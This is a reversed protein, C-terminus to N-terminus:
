FDVFRQYPNNSSPWKALEMSVTVRRDIREFYQEGQQSLVIDESYGLRYDFCSHGILWEATLTTLQRNLREYESNGYLFDPDSRSLDWTGAFHLQQREGMQITQDLNYAKTQARLTGNLEMYAITNDTYGLYLRDNSASQASFGVRNEIMRGREHDFRYFLNVAFGSVPSLDLNLRLPMQQNGPSTEHLDEPIQPGVYEQYSGEATDLRNLNFPQTISAFLFRSVAQTEADKSLYLSELSYSLVRRGYVPPVFMAGWRSYDVEPGTTEGPETLTHNSPTRALGRRQDVDGVQEFVVKPRFSLRSRGRGQEDTFIRFFEFNAELRKTDIDWGYPQPSTDFEGTSAEGPSLAYQPAYLYRDRRYYPVLNLFDVNFPYEVEAHGISLDGSWGYDRGFRTFNGGGGLSLNTNFLSSERHVVNLAVERNLYTEANTSRDFVSTHNFAAGRDRELTLGGGSWAASWSFSRRWADQLGIELDFYEKDVENDSRAEDHAIFQGGFLNQRHDVRYLYRAPQLDVEDPSKAGLNEYTLDRDQAQEDIGWAYAVGSMGPEFAWRYELGLGLGRGSIVDPTFTMDQDQDIAWFYPVQLRTGYNKTSDVDGTKSLFEPALFGSSRGKKTPWAAVPAYFIPLQNFELWTNLSYAFDDINYDIYSSKFQWVPAEPECLTLSAEYVEFTQPGTQQVKKASIYTQNVYDFLAVDHVELKRGELVYSGSQATILYDKARIVINGEFELRGEAKFYTLKRAMLEADPLHARPNEYHLIQNKRDFDYLEGELTLKDQALAQAGAGLLALALIWLIRIM